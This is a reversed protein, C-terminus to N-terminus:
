EGELEERSTLRLGGSASRVSGVVLPEGVALEALRVDDM